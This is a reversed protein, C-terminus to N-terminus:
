ARSLPGRRQSRASLLRIFINFQILDTQKSTNLESNIRKRLGPQELAVGRDVAGRGAARALLRRGLEEVVGDRLRGAPQAALQAALPGARQGALQAALATASTRKTSLNPVSDLDSKEALHGFKLPSTRKQM